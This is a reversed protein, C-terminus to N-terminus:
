SVRRMTYIQKRIQNRRAKQKHLMKLRARADQMEQVALALTVLAAEYEQQALNRRYLAELAQETLHNVRTQRSNQHRPLM